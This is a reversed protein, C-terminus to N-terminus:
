ACCVIANEMASFAVFMEFLRLIYFRYLSSNPPFTFISVNRDQSTEILWLKLTTNLKYGVRFEMCNRVFGAPFDIWTLASKNIFAFSKENSLWRWNQQSPHCEITNGLITTVICSWFHAIDFQIEQFRMMFKREVTYTKHTNHIKSTTKRM